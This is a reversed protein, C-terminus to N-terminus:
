IEPSIDPICPNQLSFEALKVRKCKVLIDKYLGESIPIDLIM